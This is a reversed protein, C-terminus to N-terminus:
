WLHAIKSPVRVAFETAGPLEGNSCQTLRQILCLDVVPDGLNLSPLSSADGSVGVMKATSNVRRDALVQHQSGVLQHESLQVLAAQYRGGLAHTIASRVYAHPDNNAQHALQYMWEDHPNESRLSVAEFVQSLTPEIDNKDTSSLAGVPRTSVRTEVASAVDVGVVVVSANGEVTSALFFHLNFHQRMFKGLVTLMLQGGNGGAFFSLAHATVVSAHLTVGPVNAVVEDRVCLAFAVAKCEHSGVRTAANFSVMLGCGQMYQLAGGHIRAVRSATDLCRSLTVMADDRGSLPVAGCAGHAFSSGCSVAVFRLFVTTVKGFFHMNARTKPQLPDAVVIKADPAQLLPTPLSTSGTRSRSLCDSDSMESKDDGSDPVHRSSKLAEHPLDESSRHSHTSKKGSGSNHSRSTRLLDDCLLGGEDDPDSNEDSGADASVTAGGCSTTAQIVYDPIHPRYEELNRQIAGFALLLKEDVKGAHSALIASVGDTDYLRLKDAVALNMAIAADAEESRQVFEQIVKHIGITLFLVTATYNGFGATIKEYLLQKRTFVQFVPLEEAYDQRLVYFINALLGIAVLLIWGRVQLVVTAVCCVASAMCAMIQPCFLIMSLLGPLASWMQFDVMGQSLHKTKRLYLYPIVSMCIVLQTLTFIIILSGVNYDQIVVGINVPIGIIGNFAIASVFIVGLKRSRVAYSEGETLCPIAIMDYQKDYVKGFLEM